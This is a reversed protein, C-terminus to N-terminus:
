RQVSQGLGERKGLDVRGGVWGVGGVVWCRDSGERKRGKGEVMVKWMGESKEWWRRNGWRAGGWDM